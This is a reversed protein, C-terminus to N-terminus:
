SSGGGSAGIAGAAAAIAVVTAAQSTATTDAEVEEYVSIDLKAAALMRDTFSRRTGSFPASTTAVSGGIAFPSGILYPWEASLQVGADGARRNCRSEIVVKPLTAYSVRYGTGRAGAAPM